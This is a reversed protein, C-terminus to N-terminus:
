NSLSCTLLWLTWTVSTSKRELYTASQDWMLHPYSLRGPGTTLRGGQWAPSVPEIGPGPPDWM